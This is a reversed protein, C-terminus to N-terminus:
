TAAPLAVMPAGDLPASVMLWVLPLATMLQCFKLMPWPLLTLKTWGSADDAIRLRTVPEAAVVM